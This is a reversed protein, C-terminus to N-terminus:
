HYLVLAQPSPTPIIISSGYGGVVPDGSITPRSGAFLYPPSYFETEARYKGIRTNGGATWVRGDPLLLAVSHYVRPISASPLNSQWTETEPDFMEPFYVPIASGQEPDEWSM